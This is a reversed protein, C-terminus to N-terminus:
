TKIFQKASIHPASPPFLVLGDEVKYDEYLCEKLTTFGLKSFIRASYHSTATGTIVKVLSNNSLEKM